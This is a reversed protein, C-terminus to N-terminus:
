RDARTANDRCTKAWFLFMDLWDPGIQDRRVRIGLLFEGMDITGSADKDLFMM